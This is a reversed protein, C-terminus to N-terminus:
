VKFATLSASIHGSLELTVAYSIERLVENAQFYGGGNFQVLVGETKHARM